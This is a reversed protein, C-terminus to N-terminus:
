EHEKLWEIAKEPCKFLKTPYDPRNIGIFFNGLIVSLLSDTLMAMATTISRVAESNGYARADHDPKPHTRLDVM